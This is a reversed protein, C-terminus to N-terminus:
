FPQGWTRASTPLAQTQHQSGSNSTELWPPLHLQADLERERVVAALPSQLFELLSPGQSRCHSSMSSSWCRSGREREVDVAAAITTLLSPASPAQPNPLPARRGQKGAISSASCTSPVLRGAERKREAFSTPLRGERRGPSAISSLPLPNHRHGRRGASGTAFLCPPKWGESGPSSQKRFPCHYSPRHSTAPHLLLSKEEM